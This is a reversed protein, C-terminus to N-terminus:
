PCSQTFMNATGGYLEKVIFCSWENDEVFEVPSDTNSRLYGIRDRDSQFENVNEPYFISLGNSGFGNEKNMRESRYNAIIMQGLEEKVQMAAKRIDDTSGHKLIRDFLFGLDIYNRRTQGDGYSSIGTREEQMQQYGIAGARNIASAFKNITQALNGARSLDVASLTTKHVDKYQERYSQVAMQAVERGSAQPQSSLVGLWTDYQWGSGPELEESAVMISAVDRMAYATEVMAMLCADFGIVDLSKGNLVQKLGDEIQRNYLISNKDDDSSVSRFGGVIAGNDATTDVSKNADNKATLQLRWGQGHNWIILMFKKAPFRQMAWRVFGTLSEIRGMDWEPSEEPINVLEKGALPELGKVIRYRKVGSWAGYDMSYHKNKPRGLQVVVNLAPSSGVRAMELFDEIGAAELSNKANMFVMITWEAQTGKAQATFFPFLTALPM